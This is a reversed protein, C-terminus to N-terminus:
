DLLHRCSCLGQAVYTSGTLNPQTGPAALPLTEAGLLGKLNIILSMETPGGCMESASSANGPLSPSLAGSGPSGQAPALAASGEIAKQLVLILQWANYVLRWVESTLYHDTDQLEEGWSLQLLTYIALKPCWYAPGPSYTACECEIRQCHKRWAALCASSM